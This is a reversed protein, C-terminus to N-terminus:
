GNRRRLPPPSGQAEAGRVMARDLHEFATAQRVQAESVEKVKQSLRELPRIVQETVREALMRQEARIGAIDARASDTAERVQIYLTELANFKQGLGNLDQKTAFVRRLREILALILVTVVFGSGVVASWDLHLGASESM